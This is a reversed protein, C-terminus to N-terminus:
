GCGNGMRKDTGYGNFFVEDGRWGGEVFGEDSLEVGGEGGGCGFGHGRWATAAQVQSAELPLLCLHDHEARVPVFGRVGGAGSGIIIVDYDTM